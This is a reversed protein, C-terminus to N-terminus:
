RDSGAHRRRTFGTLMFGGFLLAGAAALLGLVTLGTLALRAPLPEEDDVEAALSGVVAGPEPEVITSTVSAQNDHANLEATETSAVAVNTVQEGGGDAVQGTVMIRATVGAPLPSTRRCALDGGLEVCAFGDGSATVDVLHEPIEMSVVPDEAASPGANRLELAWVATEGVTLEGQLAATLELNSLPVIRVPDEASDNSPDADALETSVTVTNTVGGEAAPDVDVVLTISPMASGPDVATDSVCAIVTRAEDPECTWGDGSAGMFVLGDPLSDTVTVRGEHRNPGLNRVVVDFDGTAGVSFDGDHTKEVALDVLPVVHLEVSATDNGDEPDVTAASVEVTNRLAQDDGQELEWAAGDVAVTLTVTTSEDPGLTRAYECRVPGDGQPARCTWDDGEASVFTVGDPLGDDVAIPAASVNPGDNTVTVDIEGTSGVQFPEDGVTTAVRLDALPRIPVSDTGVHETLDTAGEVSARVAVRNTVVDPDSQPVPAAEPLVRVDVQIPALREGAALLPAREDLGDRAAVCHVTGNPGRGAGERLECDWGDGAADVHGFGAPLVQDVVVPGYEASPGDNAVSLTLRQTSGVTWPDTATDHGVDVTLSASPVVPTEVTDTREDTDTGGVVAVRNQVLNETGPRPDAVAAPDVRVVVTILGLSRGVAIEGNWVCRFGGRQGDGFGTGAETECDWGPADVRVLQLHEDIRDTVEVPGQEAATGPNSVSIYYRADHQGATFIAGGDDKAVALRAGEAPVDADGDASNAGAAGDLAGVRPAPTISGAARAAPDVTSVVDIPEYTSGAPTDAGDRSCVVRGNHDAPATGSFSTSGTAASTPVTSATCDWGVGSVSVLRLGDPLDDVVQISGRAPSPGANTVELRHAVIAGPALPTAPDVTATVLLDSVRTVTTEVEATDNSADPDPTASSVTASARVTGETGAAAEAGGAVATVDVGIVVRALSISAPLPGDAECRVTAGGDPLSCRWGDGLASTATVGAPLRTEAVIPGSAADAGRNVVDLHYSGEAGVVFGGTDSLRVALDATRLRAAADDRDGELATGGADTGDVTATNPHLVAEGGADVLGPVDASAPGPTATFTITVASRPGLDCLDQWDIRQALGGEVADTVVVPASQEADPVCGSGDSGLIGVSGEDFTWNVPLSDTVDVGFATGRGDNTVVLEWGVPSGIDADSVEDGSATAKDIGLRALRTTVSHSASEPDYRRADEDGSGGPVAFYETITADNDLTDGDAFSGSTAADVQQTYAITCSEGAALGPAAPDSSAHLTWTARQEGLQPTAAAECTGAVDSPAGLGAPYEDTVVIGHAASTGTNTLTLTYRVQQGAEVSGDTDDSTKEIRLDPEVVTVEDSATVTMDFGAGDAVTIDDDRETVNWHLDVDSLLVDGARSDAGDRATVGLEIRCEGGVASIDGLFWGFRAGDPDLLHPTVGDTVCHAGLPGEAGRQGTLEIGPPLVDVVTADHLTLGDPLAITISRDISAGAVVTPSAAASRLTPAAIRITDTSTARYSTRADPADISAATLTTTTALPTSAAMPTAVTTRYSLRAPQEATIALGSLDWEIRTTGDACPASPPTVLVLGALDGTLEINGLEDPVCEVVTTSAAAPRGEANTVVVEHEVTRGGVLGGLLADGDPTHASSVSLDPEVVTITSTASAAGGGATSLEVELDVVAGHSNSDVDTVLVEFSIRVVVPEDGTNAWSSGVLRLAEADDREVDLGPDVVVSGPVLALGAPMAAEVIVDHVSTGAPVTLDYAVPVRGGITAVADATAGVVTLTAPALSVTAEAAIPAGIMDPEQLSLGSPDSFSRVTARNTYEAGAAADEAVTLEYAISAVYGAPVRDIVATLMDTSADCEARLTATPAPDATASVGERPTLSVAPEASLTRCGLGDPLTDVVVVDLADNPQGVAARNIRMGTSLRQGTRDQSTTRRTARADHEGFLTLGAADDRAGGRAANPSEEAMDADRLRSQEGVTGGVPRLPPAVNAVDIRFPVRQGARVRNGEPADVVGKTLTLQPEAVRHGSSSRAGTRRVGDSDLGSVELQYRAEAATGSDSSPADLVRASSPADLVRAGVVVHFVTGKPSSVREGPERDAAVRWLVANGYGLDLEPQSPVEADHDDFAAVGVYRVGAPLFDTIEGDRIQVGEPLEVRLESCVLDGRAFDILDDPAATWGTSCREGDIAHRTADDGTLVRRELTNWTSTLEDDASVRVPQPGTDDTGERVVSTGSVTADNRLTDFVVIDRDTTTRYTIRVTSSPEITGLTWQLTSGDRQPDLPVPPTGDVSVTATGDVLRLQEPLRDTVVVDTIERHAGTRVVLEWDTPGNRVIGNTCRGSGDGNDSANCAAKSLALDGASLTLASRSWTSSADVGEALRGRHEGSVTAENAVATTGSTWEGTNNDLNALQECADREARCGTDPADGSWPANAREAVVAAYDISVQEGPALDGLDWRVRTYVGPELPGTGDPDLEVTDVSSPTRCGSREDLPQDLRLSPGKAAREGHEATGCGLFELPAALHDEVVVSGTPANAANAVRLTYTTAHGPGRLIQGDTADSSVTVQVPVVRASGSASSRETWKSSADEPAADPDPVRHEDTSALATAEASVVDGAVPGAAADPTDPADTRDPANPAIRYRLSAFSGPQADGINEWILTTAGPTPEDRRVRTPEVSFSGSVTHMGAPVVDTVTVNHYREQDPNTPAWTNHADLEVVMEAGVLASGQVEAGAPGVGRVDKVLAFTNPPLVPEDAAAVGYPPLSAAGTAVLTVAALLRLAPNSRRNVAVKLDAASRPPATELRASAASPVWSAAWFAMLHDQTAPPVAVFEIGLRTSDDELAVASRVVGPVRLPELRGPLDISVPVTSGVERPDNTRVGVGTPGLDVLDVPLGGVAVDVAAVARSSSRRRRTPVIVDIARLLPATAAVGATLLVVTDVKPTDALPWGTLETLARAGLAVLLVATAVFAIRVRDVRSGVTRGVVASTIVALSRDISAFAARASEFAGIRRGSSRRRVAATVAHLALGVGLVWWAGDSVPLRGTFLTAALVAVVALAALGTTSDLLSGVTAIRARAGLGRALLPGRLSPLARWRAWDATTAADDRRSEPGNAVALSVDSWRGSWGGRVWATWVTAVSSRRGVRTTAALEPEGLESRAMEPRAMEPRVLEPAFSGFSARRVVSADVAWAAVGARGDAPGTVDNLTAAEPTREPAPTSLSQLWGVSDDGFHPRALAVLDHHAISGSAVFAVLDAGHEDAVAALALACLDGSAVVRRAGSRAAIDDLHGGAPGVLVVGRAGNVQHASLMSLQLREEDHDDMALVAVDLSLDPRDAHSPAVTDDDSAAADLAAPDTEDPVLRVSWLVLRTLAFAEAALLPWFSWAPVGAGSWVVRAVLWAVGVAALASPILASRRDVRPQM